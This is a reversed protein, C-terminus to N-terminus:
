IVKLNIKRGQLLGQIILIIESISQGTLIVHFHLIASTVLKMQQFIMNSRSISRQGQKVFIVSSELSASMPYSNLLFFRYSVYFFCQILLLM